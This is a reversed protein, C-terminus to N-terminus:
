IKSLSGRRKRQPMAKGCCSCSSGGKEKAIIQWPVINAHHELTSLLIEDGPQLFKRGYTQAVLNVGETTGRVFIIEGPKGAGILSQVKQRAGEFADTSRAALSHAARHINSNDHAYYKSIADIVSQPKQTTAANDFWVLPKGHVSQHLIPFDNRISPIDMPRSSGSQPLDPIGHASLARQLLSLGSSGPCFESQPQLAPNRISDVFRRIGDPSVDAFNQTPASSPVGAFGPFGFHSPLM